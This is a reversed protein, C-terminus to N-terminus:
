LMSKHIYKYKHLYYCFLITSQLTKKFTKMSWWSVYMFVYLWFFQNIFIQFIFFLLTQLMKFFFDIRMVNWKSFAIFLLPLYTHIYRTDILPDGCGSYYKSLSCTWKYFVLTLESEHPHTMLTHCFWKLIGRMM